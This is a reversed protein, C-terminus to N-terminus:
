LFFYLPLRQNLVVLTVSSCLLMKNIYSSSISALFTYTALCICMIQTAYIQQASSPSHAVSHTLSFTVRTLLPSVPEYLM